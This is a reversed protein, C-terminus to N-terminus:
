SVLQSPMYVLVCAEKEKPNAYISKCLSVCAVAYWTERKVKHEQENTQTDGLFNFVSIRASFIPNRNDLSVLKTVTTSNPIPKQLKKM